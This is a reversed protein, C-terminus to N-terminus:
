SGTAEGDRSEKEMSSREAAPVIRRQASRAASGGAAPLGIPAFEVCVFDLFDRHERLGEFAIGIENDAWHVDELYSPCDPRTRLLSRAQNHRKQRKGRIRGM